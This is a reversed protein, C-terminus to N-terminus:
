QKRPKKKVDTVKGGKGKIVVKGGSHDHKEDKDREKAKDNSAVLMHDGQTSHFGALCPTALLALTLVITILRM